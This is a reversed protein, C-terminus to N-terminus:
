RRRCSCWSGWACSEPGWDYQDGWLFAQEAAGQLCFSLTLAQGMGEVKVKGMVSSWGGVPSGAGKGKNRQRPNERAEPARTAMRHQDPWFPWSISAVSAARLRQALPPSGWGKPTYNSAHGETEGTPILAPPRRPQSICLVRGM